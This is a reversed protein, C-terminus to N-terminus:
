PEEFLGFLEAFPDGEAQDLSALGAGSALGPEFSPLAPRAISVNDNSSSEVLTRAKAKEDSGSRPVSGGNRM